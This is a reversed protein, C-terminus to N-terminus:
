VKKPTFGSWSKRTMGGINVQECRTLEVERVTKMYQWMLKHGKTSRFVAVRKQWLAVENPTAERRKGLTGYLRVAPPTGFKGFILSKLWFLRNSNVALVCISNKTECNAPLKRTFAEFYIAKGPTGPIFSGIPTIHPNGEQDISAVSFHLSSGFSQKCIKKDRALGRAPGYTVREECFTKFSQTTAHALM